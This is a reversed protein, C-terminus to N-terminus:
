NEFKVYETVDELGSWKIKLTDNETSTIIGKHSSKRYFVIIENKELIYPMEGGGDYDVINFSERSVHFDAFPATSDQIWTGFLKTTDIEINRFITKEPQKINEVKRKNINHAAISDTKLETELKLIHANNNKANKCSCIILILTIMLTYNLKQLMIHTNRDVHNKGM